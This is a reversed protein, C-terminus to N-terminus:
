ETKSRTESRDQYHIISDILHTAEEPGYTKAIIHFNNILRHLLKDVVRNVATEIKQKQMPQINNEGTLFSDLEKQSIQHFKERLKGVLPGIDMIGFWDMFSVVNDAIIEEAQGIDEKRAKINGQIVEALDDISYLYVDELENVDPDFNRPVAIDIILLSGRRCAPLFTKDFLYNETAAAAVVMDVQELQNKLYEWPQARIGYKDAMSKARSFSRNFVTINDSGIDRLHRIVLEGMEGAGIVAIRAATINEFLQGALDIAVGAISVRRQAISTQTYVEKSTAFACHFLRNLVKGTSEAQVAQRYSEKVQSIIQAEGIVLSDLSASVTLLHDRM